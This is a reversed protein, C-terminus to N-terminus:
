TQYNPKAFRLASLDRFGQQTRHAFRQRRPNTIVNARLGVYHFDAFSRAAFDAELWSESMSRVLWVPRAGKLRFRLRGGRRLGGRASRAPAPPGARRPP